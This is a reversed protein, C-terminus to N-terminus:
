ALEVRAASARSALRAYCALWQGAVAEISFRSAIRDRRVAQESPSGLGARLAARMAAALAAANNRPVIQGADGLLSAVGPADTSVVPCGCALAEAIVLPMGEIDSSLVFLDAANLLAAVDRRMGLLTARGALGLRDITAALADRESGEGAILLRAELGEESQLHSFADLLLHQAKEPVLRGVNLILTSAETAGLSQRTALRLEPSPRFRDIEIGNPVVVIRDPPAAGADIMGQRGDASVHTTLSAWRDTLRYALMRLRGGERYSHATCIVPPTRAIRTLARAFLNAHVMHAHLVDPRWAHLFDRVQWLTSAMSWPTKRMDLRLVTATAPLDVECDPTLSVVAVAHGLAIFHRALAAVQQEAGGLRLGTSLLMIRMPQPLMEEPTRSM